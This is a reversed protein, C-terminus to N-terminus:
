KDLLDDEGIEWEKALKDCCNDCFFEGDSSWTGNNTIQRCCVCKYM